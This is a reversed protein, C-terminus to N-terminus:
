PSPEPVASRVNGIELILVCLLNLTISLLSQSYGPREFRHISVILTSLILFNRWTTSMSKLYIDTVGLLSVSASVNLFHFSLTWQASSGMTHSIQEGHPLYFMGALTISLTVEFLIPPMVGIGYAIDFGSGLRLLRPFLFLPSSSQLGHYV